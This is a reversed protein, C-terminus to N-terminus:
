NAPKLRRATERRMLAPGKLHIATGTPRFLAQEPFRQQESQRDDACVRWDKPAVRIM